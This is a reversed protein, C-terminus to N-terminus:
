REDDGPAPLEGGDSVELPSENAADDRGSFEEGGEWPGEADSEEHDFVIVEVDRGIVEALHMEEVFDIALELQREVRAADSGASALGIVARQWTDQGGVEAVSVNFRNRLRHKISQVVGRKAKLSQSEHVHIEILGAGVIM